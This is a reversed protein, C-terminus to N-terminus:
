ILDGTHKRDHYALSLRQIHSYLTRRLEHLVKQGVTTTLSKEAYSCFAGLTAILLVALAAFRLISLPDAGAFYVVIDDSWGKGPQRKLVTDIVVKLPWPQLLDAVSGGAVVLVGLALSKYHPRLLRKITLASKPDPDPM